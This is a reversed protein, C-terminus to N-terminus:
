SKAQQWFIRLGTIIRLRASCFLSWLSSLVGQRQRRLCEISLAWLSNEAASQRCYPRVSAFNVYISISSCCIQAYSLRCSRSKSFANGTIRACLTGGCMPVCCKKRHLAQPTCNGSLTQDCPLRCHAFLRADNSTHIAQFSPESLVRAFRLLRGRKVTDAKWLWSNQQQKCYAQLWYSSETDVSRLREDVSHRLPSQLLSFQLTSTACRTSGQQLRCHRPQKSAPWKSM